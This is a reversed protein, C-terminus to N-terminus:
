GLRGRQLEFLVVGVAVSLNLSTASGVMPVRISLDGRTLMEPGLGTGENGFVVAVPRRLEAELYSRSAHASTMVVTVERERAWSFFAGADPEKAIPLAFLSGTSARAAPPSFPDTTIGTLMVAAAGAADASRLISGLNGPNAVEHLVVYVSDAAVPIAALETAEVRVIAGLGSPGDRESIRRYLAESVRVVPTGVEEQESVLREGPSGALLDPSVVLAEIEAGADIARWVPQVGDCFISGSHRDRGSALARVRKVFPNSSSTILDAPASM